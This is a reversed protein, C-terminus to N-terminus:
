ASFETPSCGYTEKFCKTFYSPDNFGVRYVIESINADSKQLLSAALKLRQSRIFESTTLGTLAKLKRHLQMRSMGVNKSFEEVSFGSEMLKNDLVEQIKELFQEDTSSIAIDRPKLIVEQSYRLQLQKRLAILTSVKTKLLKTSFPKTIYDDAGTKIGTLENEEGAKATLLIIPIHSTREDKKLASVLEIGNKKPMMVDSLVLDPVQEVAIKYGEEGDSATLIKYHKHFTEKLLTRVDANDDILLLIPNEEKQIEAEESREPIDTNFSEPIYQEKISTRIETDLFSKKDVPIEVTFTTNNNTGSEARITGKHLAVLESVLALGIGAGESHEDEQYFRDFIKQLQLESLGVGTNQVSLSLRNNLVAATCSVTGAETTYKIANSLLNVLIKELADKDFWVEEDITGMELLYGIDKKRAMYTFSDALARIFSLVNGKEVRLNMNGVEIKSLDLLQDVLALLRKSNRAILKLEARDTENLDDRSLQNELPASILTLPTRFEHSINAFFDSKMKDIDRLKKNTQQRNRYLLFLLIGIASTFGIGGLLLNRQNKKQQEALQNQAKLFSIEQQNKEANYKQELEMFAENNADLREINMLSDLSKQAVFAKKYDGASEWYKVTLELVRLNFDSNPFQHGFNNVYDLYYRAKELAGKQLSLDILALSTNTLSISDDLKKFRGFAENFRQEASDLKNNKIDVDALNLLVLAINFSDQKRLSETYANEYHEKATMYNGEEFAINGLEILHNYIGPLYNTEQAVEYSKELYYKAKEPNGTKLYLRGIEGLANALVPSSQGNQQYVSDIKILYTLVKEQDTELSSLGFYSNAIGDTYGIKESASLAQRYFNDAEYINEKFYHHNGLWITSNIIETPMKLNKAISLSKEFEAISQLMNHQTFQYYGLNFHYFYLAKPYTNRKSIFLLSDLFVKAKDDDLHVLNNFNKHFEAVKISDLAVDSQSFGWHIFALLLILIRLFQM